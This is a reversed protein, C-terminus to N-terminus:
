VRERCSARGIEIFHIYVFTGGVVLVAVVVVAGILRLVWRRPNASAM